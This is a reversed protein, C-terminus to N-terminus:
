EYFYNCVNKNKIDTIMAISLKWALFHKSNLWLLLVKERPSHFYLMRKFHKENYEESLECLCYLCLVMRRLFEKIVKRYSYANKYLERVHTDRRENPLIHIGNYNVIIIKAMRAVRNRIYGISSWICAFYYNWLKTHKFIFTNLLEFITLLWLIHFRLISFPPFRIQYIQHTAPPIM